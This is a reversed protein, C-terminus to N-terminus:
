KYELNYKIGDRAVRKQFDISVNEMMLVHNNVQEDSPIEDFDIEVELIVKVGNNM